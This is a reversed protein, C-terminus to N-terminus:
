RSGTLAKLQAYAQRHALDAEFMEVEVEARAAKVDINEAASSVKMLLGMSSGMKQAVLSFERSRQLEFYSKKLGEAMKAKTLQVGLEAMEAQARAEKVARERKGFDFINYSVMVGGYAFNNPMLPIANQFLYGGVALGDESVSEPVIIGGGPVLDQMGEQATWRWPGLHGLFNGFGLVVLWSWSSVVLGFGVAGSDPAM